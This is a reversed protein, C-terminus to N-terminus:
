AGGGAQGAQPLRLALALLGVLQERRHVAPKGFPKVRRVQNVRLNQKLFESLAIWGPSRPANTGCSVDDKQAGMQHESQTGTPQAAAPPKIFKGSERARVWSRCDAIQLLEDKLRYLEVEYRPTRVVRDIPHLNCSM